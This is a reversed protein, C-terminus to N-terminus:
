HINQFFSIKNDEIVFSLGEIELVDFEDKLNRYGRDYSTVKVTHGQKQLYRIMEKSRSSHGSGEGSLGYVINAM